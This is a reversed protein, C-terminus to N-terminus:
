VMYEATKEALRDCFHEFEEDEGHIRVSLERNLDLSMVGLISKGDVAYRGCCLDVKCNCQMAAIVFEKADLITALRIKKEKM